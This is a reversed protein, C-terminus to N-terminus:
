AAELAWGYQYGNYWGARLEIQSGAYWVAFVPSYRNVTQLVQAESIREPPAALAPGGTL